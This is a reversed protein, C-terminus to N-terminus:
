KQSNTIVNEVMQNREAFNTSGSKNWARLVDGIKQALETKKKIEHLAIEQSYEGGIVLTKGDLDEYAVQVPSIGIVAKAASEYPANVSNAEVVRGAGDFVFVNYTVTLGLSSMGRLLCVHNTVGHWIWLASESPIWSTFAPHIAVINQREAASLTGGPQLVVGSKTCSSCLAALLLVIIFVFRM